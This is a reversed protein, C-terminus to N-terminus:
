DVVVCDDGNFGYNVVTGNRITFSTKCYYNSYRPTNPMGFDPTEIASYSVESNYPRTEGNFARSGFKIYTVVKEDPTVYFVNAPYGWAQQLREESQGIWPQLTEAYTPRNACASLALMLVPLLHLINKM